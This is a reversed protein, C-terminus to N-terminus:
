QKETQRLRSRVVWEGTDPDVCAKAVLPVSVLDALLSPSSTLAM